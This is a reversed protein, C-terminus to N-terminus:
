CVIEKGREKAEARDGIVRGEDAVNAEGMAAESDETGASVGGGVKYNHHGGGYSVCGMTEADVFVEGWELDM